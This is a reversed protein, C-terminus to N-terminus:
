VNGTEKEAPPTAAGTNVASPGCKEPTLCLGLLRLHGGAVAEVCRDILIGHKYTEALLFDLAYLYIKALIGPPVTLKGLGLVQSVNQDIGMSRQGVTLFVLTKQTVRPLLAM